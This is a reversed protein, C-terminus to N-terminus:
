QCSAPTGALCATGDPCAISQTTCAGAGDCTQNTGSTLDPSCAGPGCTTGAAVPACASGDTLCANTTCAGAPCASACCIGAPGSAAVCHGSQCDAGSNGANATGCTQGNAKPTLCQANV